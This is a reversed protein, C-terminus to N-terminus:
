HQMAHTITTRVPTSPQLSHVHLLLYFRQFSCHQICPRQRCLSVLIFASPGLLLWPLKLQHAECKCRQATGSSRRSAGKQM